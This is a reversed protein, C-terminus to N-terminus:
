ATPRRAQIENRRGSGSTSAWTAATCPTRLTTSPLHHSGELTFRGQAIRNAYRGTICGFYPTRSTTTLNNFGLAVNAPQGKRDPVNLAQIIGGYTLIKVTVSATTLTYRDVPTAASAALFRSSCFLGGSRSSVTRTPAERGRLSEDTLWPANGLM